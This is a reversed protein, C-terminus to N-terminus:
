GDTIAVGFAARVLTAHGCRGKLPANSFPTAKDPARQFSHAELQPGEVRHRVGNREIFM